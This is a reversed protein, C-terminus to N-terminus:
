KKSNLLVETDYLESALKKSYNDLEAGALRMYNLITEKEEPGISANDYLEILGLMSSVPRRLEHSIMFAWNVVNQLFGKKEEELKMIETIDKLTGYLVAGTKEMKREVEVNVYKLRRGYSLCLVTNLKVNYRLTRCIDRKFKFRNPEALLRIFDEGPIIANSDNLELISKAQDSLYLHDNGANYTWHGFNGIKQANLLDGNMQRIRQTNQVEAQINRITLLFYKPQNDGNRMLLVTYNCWIKEDSKNIIRRQGNYISRTGEILAEFVAQQEDHEAAHTFDSLKMQLLETEPYGFLDTIEKNVKIFKGGLDVISLGIPFSKFIVDDENHIEKYKKYYAKYKRYFFWVLSYILLTSIGVFLIGKISQLKHYQTDSATLLELGIDSVLIWLVGFVLYLIGILLSYKVETKTSLKKNM